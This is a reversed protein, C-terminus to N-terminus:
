LYPRIVDFYIHRKFSLLPSTEFCSEQVNQKGINDKNTLSEILPTEIQPLSTLVVFTLIQNLSDNRRPM